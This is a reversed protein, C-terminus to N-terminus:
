FIKTPYRELNDTYLISREGTVIIERKNKDLKYKDVIKKFKENCYRDYDDYYVVLCHKESFREMFLIELETRAKQPLKKDFKLDLVKDIIDKELIYREDKLLAFSGKIPMVALKANMDIDRRRHKWLLTNHASIFEYDETKDLLEILSDVTKETNRLGLFDVVEKLKKEKM